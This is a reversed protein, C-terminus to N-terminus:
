STVTITGGLGVTLTEGPLPLMEFFSLSATAGAGVIAGATGTLNALASTFQYVPENDLWVSFYDLAAVRMIQVRLERPFGAVFSFGLAALDVTITGALAVGSQYVTLTRATPDIRIEIQDGMASELHRVAVGFYDGLSVPTVVARIMYDSKTDLHDALSYVFSDAAMAIASSAITAPSSAAGAISVVWSKPNTDDTFLDFLESFVVQVREGSPRWLKLIEGVLERDVARATDMLHVDVIRQDSEDLVMAGFDFGDSGLPTDGLVWRRDFWDVEFADVGIITNLIETYSGSVGRRDWLEPSQAILQRLESASLKDTISSTDETWLATLKLFSLFEDDITDINYLTTLEEIKAEIDIWVHEPGNCLRKWLLTGARDIDRVAKIHFDYIRSSESDSLLEGFIAQASAPLTLDNGGLDSFPGVTILDEEGWGGDGWEIDGWLSSPM